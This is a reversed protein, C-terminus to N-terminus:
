GEELALGLDAELGGLGERVIMGISGAAEGAPSDIRLGDATMIITSPGMRVQPVEVTKGTFPNKWTKALIGTEIDTFFAVEIARAEFAEDSIMRYRSFTGALIGLMPTARHDVVAYRTGIVWGMVLRDDTSGRLKAVATLYDGRDSLDLGAAGFAPIGPVGAGIVAGGLLRLMARRDIM